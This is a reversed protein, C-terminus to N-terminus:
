NEGFYGEWFAALIGRGDPSDVASDFHMAEPAPVSVVFSGDDAADVSEGSMARTGDAWLGVASITRERDPSLSPPQGTTSPPASWAAAALFVAVPRTSSETSLRRGIQAIAAARDGSEASSWLDEDLPCATLAASSQGPDAKLVMLVPVLAQGPEGELEQAQYEVADIAGCTLIERSAAPWSGSARIRQWRVWDAGSVWRTVQGDGSGSGCGLVGFAAAMVLAVLWGRLTM